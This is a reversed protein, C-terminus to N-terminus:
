ISISHLLKVCLEINHNDSLTSVYMSKIGKVIENCWKIGKVIEKCKTCRWQDAMSTSNSTDADLDVFESDKVVKNSCKKCGLYWWGEEELITIITGVMVSAINQLYHLYM